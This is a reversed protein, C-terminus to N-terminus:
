SIDHNLVTTVAADLSSLQRLGCKIGVQTM